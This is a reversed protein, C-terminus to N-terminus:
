REGVPLVEMLWDSSTLLMYPPLFAVERGLQVLEM